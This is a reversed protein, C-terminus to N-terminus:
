YGENQKLTGDALEIEAQPIPLFGSFGADFQVEYDAADGTYFTGIDNTITLEQQATALGRRMVDYYRLGEGALEKRREEFLADESYSALPALGVRDRVRNLFSVDQSIEAAMLLVDAFRIVRYNTMNHLEPTGITGRDELRTTYKNNYLGTYQYSGTNLSTGTESLIQTETLITADLRPDGQMDQYLKDSIMAFAWGRYYTSGGTVRPGMMQAALNGEIFQETGWDGGVPEGAYGVEFVNEICYENAALFLQDYDALLEHGSNDIVDNLQTLVYTDDIAQSGATIGNGYFGKEFLYVRALLSQAAWKTAKGTGITTPLNPIADVLDSAIFNYVETPSSQPIKVDADAEPVFDLLKINEFFRVLEFHYFARLFKAEAVIRDVETPDVGELAMAKEITFNARYIGFYNRKWISRIVENATSFTFRNFEDEEAGDGADQGGGYADDSMAEVLTLYPSWALGPGKQWGLVDYTSVLSEEVRDLTTYYNSAFVTGQPDLTLYDKSCGSLIVLSITLILIKKM